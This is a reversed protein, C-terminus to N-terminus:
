DGFSIGINRATKVVFGDPDVNHSGGKSTEGTAGSGLVTELSVTQPMANYITVMEGSKGEFLADVALSGLKTCLSRDYQCTEGGRQTHGINTARVEKGGLLAELQSALQDGIGGLRVTDASDAVIKKIVVDGDKPKAGESVVIM